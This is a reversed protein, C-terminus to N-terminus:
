VDREYEGFATPVRAIPNPNDDTQVRFTISKKRDQGRWARWVFFDVAYIVPLIDRDAIISSRPVTDDISRSSRLTSPWRRPGHRLRVGARARM